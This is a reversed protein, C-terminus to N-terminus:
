LTEVAAKRIADFTTQSITTVLMREVKYDKPYNDLAAMLGNRKNRDYDEKEEENLPVKRVITIEYEPIM